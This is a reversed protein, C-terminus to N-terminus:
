FLVREYTEKDVRYCECSVTELGLTDLITIHGRNYSILNRKQLLGAAKTIGVRRVGLMHALLEHTLHFNNSHARDQTMLLWRALRAEVQHFHTCAVTQALQSMLVQVYRNLVRQLTTNNGLERRFTAAGMQWARGSCQILAQLPSIDVGLMLSIGFMGESGVLRVQLTANSDIIPNSLSIVSNIPFYVLRIREEPECLVDPATLEVQECNRLFHKREKSPLAFLIRNVPSEIRPPM